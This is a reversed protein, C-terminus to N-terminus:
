GPDRPEPIPDRTVREGRRVTLVVLGVLAAACAALVATHLNFATVQLRASGTAALLGLVVLLGIWHSPKGLFIRGM